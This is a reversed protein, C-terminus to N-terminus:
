RRALDLNAGPWDDFGRRMRSVEHTERRASRGGQIGERLLLSSTDHLVGRPAIPWREDLRYHASCQSRLHNQSLSWYLRKRSLRSCSGLPSSEALVQNCQSRRSRCRHLDAPSYTPRSRASSGLTDDSRRAPVAADSDPVPRGFGSHRQRCGLWLWSAAPPSPFLLSWPM